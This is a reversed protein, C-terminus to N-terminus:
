RPPLNARSTTPDRPFLNQPEDANANTPRHFPNSDSRPGSDSNDSNPSTSRDRYTQGPFQHAVPTDEAMNKPTTEAISLLKAREFHHALFRSYFLTGLTNSRDHSAIVPIYELQKRFPLVSLVITDTRSPLLNNAQPFLPRASLGSVPLCLCLFHM